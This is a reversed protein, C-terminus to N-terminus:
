IVKSYADTMVAILLNLLMVAMVSEFILFFAVSITENSGMYFLKVDFGGLMFYFM